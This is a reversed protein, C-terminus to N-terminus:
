SLSLFEFRSNQHDAITEIERSEAHARCDDFLGLFASGRSLGAGGPGFPRGRSSRRGACAVSCLARLLELLLPVVLDVFRMASARHASHAAGRSVLLIRQSASAGIHRRVPSGRADTVESTCRESTVPKRGESDVSMGCVEHGWRRSRAIFANM